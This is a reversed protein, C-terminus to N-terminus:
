SGSPTHFSHNLFLVIGLVLLEVLKSSMCSPTLQHNLVMDNIRRAGLSPSSSKDRAMPGSRSLGKYPTSTSLQQVMLIVGIMNMKRKNRRHSRFSSCLSSFSLFVCPALSLYCHSHFPSILYDYDAYSLCCFPYPLMPLLYRSFRSADRSTLSSRSPDRPSPFYNRCLRSCSLLFLSPPTVFLNFYFNLIVM